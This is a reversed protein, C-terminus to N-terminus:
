IAAITMSHGRSPPGPGRPHPPEPPGTDDTKDVTVGQVFETVELKIQVLTWEDSGM